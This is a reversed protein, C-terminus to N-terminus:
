CLCWFFLYLPAVLEAKQIVRAGSHVVKLGEGQRPRNGYAFQGVADKDLVGCVFM